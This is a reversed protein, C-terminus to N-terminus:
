FDHPEQRTRFVVTFESDPPSPLISFPFSLSTTMSHSVSRPMAVRGKMMQTGRKLIWTRRASSLSVALLVPVFDPVAELPSTSAKTIFRSPIRWVRHINKQTEQLSLAANTQNQKLDNVETNLTSVTQQDQASQSVAASATAELKQV